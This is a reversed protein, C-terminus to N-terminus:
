FVCSGNTIGQSLTYGTDEFSEIDAPLVTAIEICEKENYKFLQIELKNAPQNGTYIFTDPDTKKRDLISRKYSRTTSQLKKEKM